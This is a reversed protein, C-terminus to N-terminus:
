IIYPDTCEQTMAPSQHFAFSFRLMDSGGTVLSIKTM